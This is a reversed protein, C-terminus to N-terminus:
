EPKMNWQLIAEEETVHERSTLGCDRCQVSIMKTFYEDFIKPEQDCKPCPNPTTKYISM